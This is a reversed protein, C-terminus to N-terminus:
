LQFIRVTQGDTVIILDDHATLAVLPQEFGTELQPRLAFAAPDTTDVLTISSSGEHTLALVDGAGVFQADRIAGGEVEFTSIPNLAAPDFALLTSDDLVIVGLTGGANLALRRASGEFDLSGARAVQVNVTLAETVLTSESLLYATGNVLGADVLDAEVPRFNIEGASLLEILTYGDGGWAMAWYRDPAIVLRSVGDLVEISNAETYRQPRSYRSAAIVRVADGEPTSVAVLAFNDAGVLARPEGDLDVSSLLTPSSPDAFNYVRLQDNEADAILLRQGDGTVALARFDGAEVSGVPDVTDQASVTGMMVCM